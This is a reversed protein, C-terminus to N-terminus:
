SSWMSQAHPCLRSASLPSSALLQLVSVMHLPLARWVALAAPFRELNHFQRPRLNWCPSEFSPAGESVKPFDPLHALLRQVVPNRCTSAM